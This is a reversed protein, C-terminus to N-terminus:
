YHEQHMKRSNFADKGKQDTLLILQKDTARIACIKGLKGNKVKDTTPNPM